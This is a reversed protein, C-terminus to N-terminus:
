TIGCDKLFSEFDKMVAESNPKVRQKAKIRELALFKEFERPYNERFWALKEQFKLWIKLRDFKKKEEPYLRVFRTPEPKRIVEKFSLDKPCDIPSRNADAGKKDVIFARVEQNSERSAWTGFFPVSGLKKGAYVWCTANYETWYRGSNNDKKVAGETILAKLGRSLSAKLYFRRLEKWTLGAEHAQLTSFIQLKIPIRPPQRKREKHKEQEYFRRWSEAIEPTAYNELMGLM